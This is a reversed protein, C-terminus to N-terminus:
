PCKFHVTDYIRGIRNNHKVTYFHAGRIKKISDGVWLGFQNNYRPISLPKNDLLLIIPSSKMGFGSYDTIVGEFSLTDEIKCSTTEENSFSNKPFLLDLSSFIVMLMIFLIVAIIKLQFPWTIKM